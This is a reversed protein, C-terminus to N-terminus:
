SDDNLVYITGEGFTVKKKKKVHPSFDEERKRKKSEEKEKDDMNNSREDESEFSALKKEIEDVSYKDNEDLIADMRNKVEFKKKDDKYDNISSDSDETPKNETKITSTEPLKERYKNVLSSSEKTKSNDSNQSEESDSSITFALGFTENDDPNKEVTDDVKKLDDKILNKTLESQDEVADEIVKEKNSSNTPEKLDDSDTQKENKTGYKQLLSTIENSEFIENSDLSESSSTDKENSSKKDLTQTNVGLLLCEDELCEIPEEDDTNSDKVDDETILVCKETDDKDIQTKPTVDYEETTPEADSTEVNEETEVDKTEHNTQTSEPKNYEENEIVTNQSITEISDNEDLVRKDSDLDEENKKEAYAENIDDEIAKDSVQVDGNKEIVDLSETSTNLKGAICDDKNAQQNKSEELCVLLQKKNSTDLDSNKETDEQDKKPKIEENNTSKHEKNKTSKIEENKTSTIEENKTYKTEEIKTSGIEEDMKSGIEEFNRSGIEGNEDIVDSKNQSKEDGGNTIIVIEDQDSTNTEEDVIQLTMEDDSIEIEPIENEDMKTEDGIAGLDSAIKLDVNELRNPPIDSQLPLKLPVLKILLEKNPATLQINQLINIEKIQKAKKASSFAKLKIKFFPKKIYPSPQTRLSTRPSTRTTIRDNHTNSSENDVDCDNRELKVILVQNVFKTDNLVSKPLVLEKEYKLPKLQLDIGKPKNNNKINNKNIGNECDEKKNRSNPHKSLLKKKFTYRVDLFYICASCTRSSSNTSLQKFDSSIKEFFDWQSGDFVEDSSTCLICGNNNNINSSSINEKITSLIKLKHYCVPCVNLDQLDEIEIIDTSSDSFIGKLRKFIDRSTDSITRTNFCFFCRKKSLNM